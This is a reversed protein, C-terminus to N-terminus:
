KGPQALMFKVFKEALDPDFQSGARLVIEQLASDEAMAVKYPRDHTIVDYVDVISFLRALFPIQEGQLNCPYGSGDWREHLALIIDALGLEGISQAMRYGIDSHSRVIQWESYTLTGPKGLLEKPIAVKGIDHLVALQSLSKMQPDDLSFGLNRAFDATLCQTKTSHGANEFCRDHLMEKMNIIINQRVKRSEVLKDNYM